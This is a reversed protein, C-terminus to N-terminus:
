YKKGEEEKEQEDKDEVKVQQWEEKVEGEEEM